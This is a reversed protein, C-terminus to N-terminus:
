RVNREDNQKRTAALQEVVAKDSAELEEARKSQKSVEAQAVELQEQLKQRDSKAANAEAILAEIRPFSVNLVTM